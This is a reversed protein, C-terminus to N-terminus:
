DGNRIDLARPGLGSARPGNEDGFLEAGSADDDEPATMTEITGPPV